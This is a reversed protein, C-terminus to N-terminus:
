IGFTNTTKVSAFSSSLDTLTPSTPTSGAAVQTVSSQRKDMIFSVLHGRHSGDVGFSFKKSKAPSAAPSGAVPSGSFDRSFWKGGQKGKNSVSIRVVSERTNVKLRTPSSVPSVMTSERSPSQKVTQQEKTEASKAPRQQKERKRRPPVLSFLQGPEAHEQSSSSGDESAPPRGLTSSPISATDDAFYDVDKLIRNSYPKGIAAGSKLLKASQPVVAASKPKGGLVGKKNKKLAKEVDIDLQQPKTRRHMVYKVIAIVNVVLVVAALTVALATMWGGSLVQAADEFLDQQHEPSSGPNPQAVLTVQATAVNANEMM